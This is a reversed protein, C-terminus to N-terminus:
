VYDITYFQNVSVSVGYHGLKWEALSREAQEENNLFSLYWDKDAKCFACFYKRKVDLGLWLCLFKYDSCFFTEIQFKRKTTENRLSTLSCFDALYGTKIDVEIGTAQLSKMEEIIPGLNNVFTDRKEDAKLIALTFTYEPSHVLKGLNLLTFYFNLGNKYRSLHFGDGGIKLQLCNNELDMAQLLKKFSMVKVLLDKLSVANGDQTTM